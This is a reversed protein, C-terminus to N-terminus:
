AAQTQILGITEYGKNVNQIKAFMYQEIEQVDRTDINLKALGQKFRYEDWLTVPHNMLDNLFAILYEKFKQWNGEIDKPINFIMCEYIRGDYEGNLIYQPKKEVAFRVYERGDSAIFPESEYITTTNYEAVNIAKTSPKLAKSLMYNGREYLFMQGKYPGSRIYSITKVSNESPRTQSLYEGIQPLIEEQSKAESIGKSLLGTAIKAEQSVGIRGTNLINEINGIKNTAGKFGQNIALKEECGICSKFLKWGSKASKGNLGAQLAKTEGYGSEPLPFDVSAIIFLSAIFSNFIRIKKM